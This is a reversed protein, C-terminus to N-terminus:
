RAVVKEQAFAGLVLALGVVTTILRRKMKMMNM